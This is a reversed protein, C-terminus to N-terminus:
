IAEKRPSVTEDDAAREADELPGEQTEDVPGMPAGFFTLNRCKFTKLGKPRFWQALLIQCFLNMLAKLHAGEVRIRSEWGSARFARRLTVSEWLSASGLGRYARLHV